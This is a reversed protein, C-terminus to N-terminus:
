LITASVFRESFLYILMMYKGYQLTTEGLGFLPFLPRNAITGTLVILFTVMPCVLASYKAYDHAKHLDGGGVKKGVVVGTASVLGGFFAYVFGECVRFAAMAAIASENQHGIVINILM